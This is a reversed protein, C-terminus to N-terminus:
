ASAGADAPSASDAPSRLSINKVYLKLLLDAAQMDGPHVPPALAVTEVGNTKM